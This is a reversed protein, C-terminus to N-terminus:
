IGHSLEAFGKDATHALTLEIKAVVEATRDLEAQLNREAVGADPAWTETVLRAGACLRLAAAPAGHSREIRVPQGVLCRRAALGRDSASRGIVDSLDQALAGYLARCEHSSLTRYNGQVTFPFITAERFEEDGIDAADPDSGILRLSPSLAILNEICTRFERLARMRWADPVQYYAGIEELAAEWRLWQGLNARSEFRSRLRWGKPWDSRNAYDAIGAANGEGAEVLRALRSPVLMAGSFAPGGFFKSGTVLVMYGRDLCARLRGRGLRMQCADVVVQVQDPWRRAIEDLCAGSPARWGLKSADMVQLLVPAGRAVATEISRLVALDIDARPRVGTADALPLAICDAALGAVPTDKRVTVGSATFRGFHRGRATYATGSGTQDSGVIVTTLGEGLLRRGLFLAHLQSNTGSPSFVVDVDGGLGLHAKLEERMEEIRTELAEELGVAIALRMLEERALGAREYGRESIASATSSAFCWTQPSPMLGCGYDNVRSIPDLMLRPDGGGALLDDLTAFLDRLGGNFPPFGPQDLIQLRPGAFTMAAFEEPRM